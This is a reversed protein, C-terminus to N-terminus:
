VSDDLFLRGYAAWNPTPRGPMAQALYYPGGAVNTDLIRITLGAVRLANIGETDAGALLYEGGAGALRAYIPVGAAEVRDLDADHRLLIQVLGTAAPQTATVPALGVTLLTAAILILSTSLKQTM